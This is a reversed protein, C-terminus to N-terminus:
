IHKSLTTSNLYKRNTFGLVLNFLINQENLETAGIYINKDNQHADKNM